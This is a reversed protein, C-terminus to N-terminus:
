EIPLGCFGQSAYNGRLHQVLGIPEDASVTAQVPSVMFLVMSAQYALATHLCHGTMCLLSAMSLRVGDMLWVGLGVFETRQRCPAPWQDGHPRGFLVVKPLCGSAQLHVDLRRAGPEVDPQRRQVVIQQCGDMIIPATYVNTRRLLHELM